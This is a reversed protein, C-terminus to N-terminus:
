TRVRGSRHLLGGILVFLLGTGVLGNAGIAPSMPDTLDFFFPLLSGIAASLGGLSMLLVGTARSQYAAASNQLNTSM